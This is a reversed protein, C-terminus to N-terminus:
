SDVMSGSSVQRGGERIATTVATRWVGALTDIRGCRLLGGLMPGVKARLNDADFEEGKDAESLLALLVGGLAADLQSAINSMLATIAIPLNAFAPLTTLPLTSSSPAPQEGEEEPKAITAGNRDWWRGVDEVYGLAGFWDGHDALDKAIRLIDDLEAVRKIGHETIRLSRLRTQADIIELGKRAQEGGVEGLSTKLDAIRSLCSSSESNLDQLNSLASFFASSRLTIEHVLHSELNDLYTSLSEQVADDRSAKSSSAGTEMVQAWTVPNALDFTTEFFTEPIDDLSPLDAKAVKKAVLDLDSPGQSEAAAAMSATQQATLFSEYLPTITQLYPDYHSRPFPKPLIPPPQALPPLAKRSARLPNAKKTPHALVTSIATTGTDTAIAHEGALTAKVRQGTGVTSAAGTSVTTSM